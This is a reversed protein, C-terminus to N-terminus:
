YIDFGKSLNSLNTHGEWFLQVKDLILHLSIIYMACIFSEKTNKLKETSFKDSFCVAASNKFFELDIFELEM